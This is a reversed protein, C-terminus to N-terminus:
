FPKLDDSPRNFFYQSLANVAEDNSVILTSGDVLKVRFKFKPEGTGYDINQVGSQPDLPDRSIEFVEGKETAHQIVFSVINEAVIFHNKRFEIPTPM